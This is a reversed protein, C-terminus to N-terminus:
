TVKSASQNDVIARLDPIWPPEGDQHFWDSWYEPNVRHAWHMLVFMQLKHIAPIAEETFNYPNCPYQGENETLERVAKMAALIADAAKQEKENLSVDTM